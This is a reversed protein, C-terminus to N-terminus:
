ERVGARLKEIYEDLDKSVEMVTDGSCVFEGNVYGEYHGNKRDINVKVTWESM